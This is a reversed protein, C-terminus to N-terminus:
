ARRAAAIEHGTAPLAPVPLLRGRPTRWRWAMGVALRYLDMGYGHGFCHERVDEEVGGYCWGGCQASLWNRAVECHACTKHTVMERDEGLFTERLYTEGPDITRRCEACTHPRKARPRTKALVDVTYDADDIMCM